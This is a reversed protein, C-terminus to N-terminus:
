KRRKKIKKQKERNKKFIDLGHRFPSRIFTTIKKSFDRAMTSVVVKEVNELPIEELGRIYYPPKYFYRRIAPKLYPYNAIIKKWTFRIYNPNELKKMWLKLFRKRESRPIYTFNIAQFLRWQHGTTNIGEIWSMFIIVPKPDNMWHSYKFRYFYGSRLTVGKFKKKYKHVLPM